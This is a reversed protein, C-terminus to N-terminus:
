SSCFHSKASLTSQLGKVVGALVDTVTVLVGLVVDVEVM